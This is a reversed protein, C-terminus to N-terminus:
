CGEWLTRQTECCLQNSPLMVVVYESDLGSFLWCSRPLISRTKCKIYSDCNYFNSQQLYEVMVDLDDKLLSLLFKLTQMHLKSKVKSFNLSYLM